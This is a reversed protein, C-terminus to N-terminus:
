FFLRDLSACGGADGLLVFHKMAINRSLAPAINQCPPMPIEHLRISKRSPQQHAKTMCKAQFEQLRCPAQQLSQSCGNRHMKYSKDLSLEYRTPM